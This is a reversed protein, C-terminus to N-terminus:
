EQGSTSKILINLNTIECGIHIKLAEIDSIRVILMGMFNSVQKM